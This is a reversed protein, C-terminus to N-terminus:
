GCKYLLTPPLWFYATGDWQAEGAELADLQKALEAQTSQTKEVHGDVQQLLPTLFGMLGQTLADSTQREKEVSDSARDM